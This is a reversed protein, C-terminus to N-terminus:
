LLKSGPVVGALGAARAYLHGKYFCSQLALLSMCFCLQPLAPVSSGLKSQIVVIVGLRCKEEVVGGM